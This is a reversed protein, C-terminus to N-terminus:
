HAVRGGDNYRAGPKTSGQFYVAHTYHTPTSADLGESSATRGGAEEDDLEDFLERFSASVSVDGDHLM